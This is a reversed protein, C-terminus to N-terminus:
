GEGGPSVIIIDFSKTAQLIEIKFFKEMPINLDDPVRFDLYKNKLHVRIELITLPDNNSIYLGNGERILDVPFSNAETLTLSPVGGLRRLNEASSWSM